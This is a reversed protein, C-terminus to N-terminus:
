AGGALDMSGVSAQRGGNKMSMPSPALSNPLSIGGLAWLREPNFSGSHALSCTPKLECLM